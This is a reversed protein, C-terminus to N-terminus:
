QASSVATACSPVSHATIGRRPVRRYQRGGALVKTSSLRLLLEQHPELEEFSLARGLHNDAEYLSEYLVRCTAAVLNGLFWAQRAMLRMASRAASCPSLTGACSGPLRGGDCAWARACSGFAYRFVKRAGIKEMTLLSFAKIM